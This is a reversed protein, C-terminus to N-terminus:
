CCRHCDMCIGELCKEYQKMECSLFHEMESNANHQVCCLTHYTMDPMSIDENEDEFDRVVSEILETATVVRQIRKQFIKVIISYIKVKKELSKVQESLPNIELEALKAELVAHKRSLKAYADKLEAYSDKMDNMSSVITGEKYNNSEEKLSVNEQKLTANEGELKAILSKLEEVDAMTEMHPVFQSLKTTTNKYQIKTEDFREDLLM